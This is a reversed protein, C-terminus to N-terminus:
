GTQYLKRGLWNHRISKRPKGLLDVILPYALPNHTFGMHSAPIAINQNHEGEIEDQCYYWHAVGDSKSYIATSPVPPPVKWFAEGQSLPDSDQTPNLKRYLRMVNDSVAIDEPDMKTELGFPTGLTIVKAIKDPIKHALARAYIGGLSWGILSIKRGYKKYSEEVTEILTDLVEEHLGLNRGQQWGITEFGKQNLYRRLLFTASDSTMFGPIVMVPRSDGIDSPKSFQWYVSLAAVELIARPEMLSHLLDPKKIDIATTATNQM